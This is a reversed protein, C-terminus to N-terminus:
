RATGGKAAPTKGTTKTSMVVRMAFREDRRFGGILLSFCALGAFTL